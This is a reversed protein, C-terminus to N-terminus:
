INTRTHQVVYNMHKDTHATSYNCKNTWTHPKQLKYTQRHTSHTQKTYVPALSKIIILRM